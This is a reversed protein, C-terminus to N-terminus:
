LPDEGRIIWNAVRILDDASPPMATSAAIGGRKELAFRASTVAESRAEQERSLVTTNEVIGEIDVPAPWVGPLMAQSKGETKEGEGSIMTM